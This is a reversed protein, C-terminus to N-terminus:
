NVCSDLVGVQEPMHALWFVLCIFETLSCFTQLVESFCINSGPVSSFYREVIYLNKWTSNNMNSSYTACCAGSWEWQKYVSDDLHALLLAAVSIHMSLCAHWWNLTWWQRGETYPFLTHSHGVENFGNQRPMLAAKTGCLPLVFAIYM